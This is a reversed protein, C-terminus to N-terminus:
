LSVRTDSLSFSYSNFAGVSDTAIGVNENYTSTYQSLSLSGVSIDSFRSYTFGQYTGQGTGNSAVKLLLADRLSSTVLQMDGCIYLSYNLDAAIEYSYLLQAGGLRNCWLLKGTESLSVIVLNQPSQDDHGTLYVKGSLDVAVGYAWLKASSSAIYKAWLLTGATNYKLVAMRSRGSVSYYGCSYINNNKDIVADTSSYSLGSYSRQWQLVGSSNYKALLPESNNGGNGAIYVNGASDTVVGGGVGYTPPNLRRQWQLVGSSSYKALYLTPSYEFSVYVNDASDVTVKNVYDTDGTGLVRQWLLSGASDYKAIFLDYNSTTTNPFYGVVIINGASDVALAKGYSSTSGEMRRQWVITGNQRYKVLYSNYLSLGGSKTQGLAYVYGQPDIAVGAFFGNDGSSPIYDLWRTSSRNHAPFLQERIM